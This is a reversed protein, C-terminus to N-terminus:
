TRQYIGLLDNEPYTMGMRHLLSWVSLEAFQTGPFRSLTSCNGLYRFAVEKFGHDGFLENLRKRTNLKYCTPFVDESKTQWLLHTLFSHWRYPVLSAAISVPAWRNPTYIVVYGGLNMLRSLSELSPEPNPIHEAVMRLTALDFRRESRFNEILGQVPEHVYTNQHINDSPDVGVLLECREALEESLKRNHPFISKGGGVDIWKSKQDLLHDVVAAYWEETAFYGFRHRMKVRWGCSGVEGQHHRLLSALNSDSPLERAM